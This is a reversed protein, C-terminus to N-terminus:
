CSTRRDSLVDILPGLHKEYNKWRGISRTNIPSNVQTASVTNVPRKTLHPTLCGPHWSLECHALLRRIQTEPHTVMEEYQVDLIRGPLVSRWHRMLREYQRYVLGFARLDPPFPCWFLNKCFGSVCADLANRRCHIIKAKPFLVTILGIYISNGLHKDVFRVHGDFLNSVREIYENGLNELEQLDLSCICSPYPEKLKSCLQEIINFLDQREGGAFVDPHSALIQELLTSVSRPRGVIFILPEGSKGNGAAQLRELFGSNFVEILQDINKTLDKLILQHNRYWSRNVDHAAKFQAFAEDWLEMREYLTGLTHHYNSRVTPHLNRKELSNKIYEIHPHSLTRYYGCSALSLYAGPFDPAVQVVQDLVDMAEQKKSEDILNKALFFLTSPRQQEKLALKYFRSSEDLNGNWRYFIGFAELVDVNDPALGSAIELQEKAKATESMKSYYKSLIIHAGVDNPFRKVWNDIILISAGPMAKSNFLEALKITADRDAPLLGLITRYAIETLGYYKLAVKHLWAALYISLGLKHLLVVICQSQAFRVRFWLQRLHDAVRFLAFRNLALEMNTSSPM